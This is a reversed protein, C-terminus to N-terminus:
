QDARFKIRFSLFTNNVTVGAPIIIHGDTQVTIRRPSNTGDIAWFDANEGPRSGAPLVDSFLYSGNDTGSKLLAKVEVEGTESKYYGPFQGSGYYVWSNTPTLSNWAPVQKKAFAGDSYTKLGELLSQVDTGTLGTIATAGTNKAGSDGSTTSKLGDVLNNFYTRIEEPAADFIAKAAAPNGTITDAADAVKQTYATLKNFSM